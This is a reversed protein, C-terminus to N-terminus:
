RDTDKPGRLAAQIQRMAGLHYALHVVSGIMGGIAIDVVERPTRLAEHWRTVESRLTDRITTWQADDVTTITWAQHWDAQAFPNGGETAWRNMLSLAYGLHAAHAAVTAGGQASVSAEAASLTDLSALLGPDGGNLVFNAGGTAGLNLEAFIGALPRSFSRTDM